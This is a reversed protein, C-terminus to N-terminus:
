TALWDRVQAHVVPDHLLDFHRCGGVVRVDAAEIRRRYGRGTASAARVILDGVLVGVPHTPDTTVVGAVFHQEVGEPSPVDGVMNSLLADPDMENWDAMRIAGFRLDKIGASRHDMFDALPRSEPALRLGWALLSAGKELPAGFHPSGLAVLHRATSAWRHGADQGALMASRAVLGGMSHGVLAVEEVEVPWSDFIEELLNALTAGNDSVHRGTNYRVLLPTLSDAALLDGLGTAREGDETPRQWCRETEGLGPLLVVLRSTPAPFAMALAVPNPGIPRGDADRLGLKINLDSRRRELEDGWLANAIARIGSGRSSRWLPRLGKRDEVAAAGLALAAGVALGVVRVSGYVRGTFEDYARGVPAAREGALGFWRGAMARHMGEVPATLREAALTVLDGLGRWDELAAEDNPPTTTRDSDTNM